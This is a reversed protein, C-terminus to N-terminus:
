KAGVRGYQYVLCYFTHTCAQLQYFIKVQLRSFCELVVCLIKYKTRQAIRIQTGIKFFTYMYCKLCKRLVWPAKYAFM